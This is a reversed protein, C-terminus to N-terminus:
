IYVICLIHVTSVQITIIGANVPVPMPAPPAKGCDSATSSTTADVTVDGISADELAEHM